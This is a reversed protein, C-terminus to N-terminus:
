KPWEPVNFQQPPGYAFYATGDKTLVKVVLRHPGASLQQPSFERRFGCEQLAPDKQTEAVTDM